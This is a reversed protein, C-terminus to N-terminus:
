LFYQQYLPKDLGYRREMLAKMQEPMAKTGVADFPGGPLAQILLFTALSIALMVPIAFVIRRIIYKTM